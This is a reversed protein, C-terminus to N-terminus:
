FHNLKKRKYDISYMENKNVHIIRKWFVNVRTVKTKILDSNLCNRELAAIENASLTDKNRLRILAHCYDKDQM